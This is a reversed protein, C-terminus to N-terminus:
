DNIFLQKGVNWFKNFYTYSNTKKLIQEILLYYIDLKQMNDILHKLIIKSMKTNKSSILLLLKSLRSAHNQIMYDLQKEIMNFIKNPESQNIDDFYKNIVEELKANNFLADLFEYFNDKILQHIQSKFNVNASEYGNISIFNISFNM